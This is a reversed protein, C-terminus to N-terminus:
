TEEAYMFIYHTWLFTTRLYEWEPLTSFINNAPKQYLFKTPLVLFLNQLCLGSVVINDMVHIADVSAYHSTSNTRHVMSGSRWLTTEEERDIFPIKM